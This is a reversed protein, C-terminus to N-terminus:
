RNLAVKVTDDGAVADAAAFGIYSLPVSVTEGDAGGEKPQTVSAKVTVADSDSDYYLKDGMLIKEAAKPMEWVGATAVTGTEGPQILCAAIGVMGGFLIVSGAEIATETPNTYNLNNGEQIYSAKM